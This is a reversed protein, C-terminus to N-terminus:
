AAARCEVLAALIAACSGLSLAMAAGPALDRGLDPTGRRGARRKEGCAEAATLPTVPTTLTPPVSPAGMLLSFTFALMVLHWHRM